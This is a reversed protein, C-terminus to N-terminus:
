KRLAKEYRSQMNMLLNEGVLKAQFQLQSDTDTQMQPFEGFLDLPNLTVWLARRCLQENTQEECHRVGDDFRIVVKAPKAQHTM